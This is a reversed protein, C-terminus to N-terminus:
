NKRKPLALGYLHWENMLSNHNYYTYIGDERKQQGVLGAFIGKSHHVILKYGMPTLICWACILISLLLKNKSKIIIEPANKKRRPLIWSFSLCHSALM